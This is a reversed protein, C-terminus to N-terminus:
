VVSLPGYRQPSTTDPGLAKATAKAMSSFYPQMPELLKAVSGRLVRRTREDIEDVVLIGGDRPCRDASEGAKVIVAHFGGELGQTFVVPRLDAPDRGLRQRM